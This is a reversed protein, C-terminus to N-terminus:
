CVEDFDLIPINGINNKVAEIIELKNNLSINKGLIIRNFAERPLKIQRDTITAPNEWFMHTRYEKEFSWKMEKSFIQNSRIQYRTMIPEPLLIPLQEVYSVAGGGFNEFMIRSNYGVCFGKGFDAYKEWMSELCPDATLSLVGFRMDYQESYNRQFDELYEQNKFLKQKACQRNDKRHQQRTFHPNVMKSLRMAFAMTQKEDLLDYRIPIKCDVKDEFSSPAAMFVERNKIYRDHYKCNWDRYKYVIAPIEGDDLTGHYINTIEM